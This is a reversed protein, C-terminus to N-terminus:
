PPAAPPPAERDQGRERGGRRRLQLVGRAQRRQDARAAAAARRARRLVRVPRDHLRHPPVEDAAEHVAEVVRPHAHGVNLCGIGGAFDIFTNGDVDHLLAGRGHDIWMPMWLGKARAIAADKRATLERSRPGPIETRLVISGVPDGRIPQMVFSASSLICPRRCDGAMTRLSALMRSAIAAPRIRSSGNSGSRIWGASSRRGSRGATGRTGSSANRSCRRSSASARDSPARRSRVVVLREDEMGALEHEARGELPQREADVEDGTELALRREPPEPQLHVRRGAEDVGSEVAM